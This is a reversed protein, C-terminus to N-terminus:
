PAYRRFEELFLGSYTHHWPKEESSFHVLSPAALARRYDEASLISDDWQRFSSFHSTMVNWHAPLPAWQNRLIVNLGDQDWWLVDDRYARLYDLTKRSVEAKRWKDLDIVMVGANFTPLDGSLGLKAYSPIGRPAAFTASLRSAHRVAGVLRDGLDVDWLGTIPALVITDADLYIVKSIDPLVSELLLRYYTTLSIHHSVKLDAVSSQAVLLQTVNLPAGACARHVINLTDNTLGNSLIFVDVRVGDSLSGALSRLMAALAMAYNDDAATAIAVKSTM